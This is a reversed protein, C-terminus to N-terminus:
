ADGRGCLMEILRRREVVSGEASKHKRVVAVLEEKLKAVEQDVREADRLISAAVERYLEAKREAASLEQEIVALSRDVDVEMPALPSPSCPSISEQAHRDLVSKPAGPGIISSPTSQGQVVTSARPTPTQDELHRPHAESVTSGARERIVRSTSKAVIPSSAPAPGGGYNSSSSVASKTNVMPAKGGSPGLPKVKKKVPGHEADLDTDRKKRKQVTMEDLKSVKEKSEKANGLAGGERDKENAKMLKRQEKMAMAAGEKDGEMMGGLGMVNRKEPPKEAEKAKDDRKETGSTKEKEQRVIDKMKGKEYSKDAKVAKKDTPKEVGKAPSKEKALGTGKETLNRRRDEGGENPAEKKKGKASQGIPVSDAGEALSKIM